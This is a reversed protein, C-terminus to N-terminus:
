EDDKSRLAALDVDRGEMLRYARQRSIGLLAAAKAVNGASTRLAALLQALTPAPATPHLNESVLREPDSTTDATTRQMRAPLDAVGLARAETHLTALRRVLFVLERVNFPWDYLCLHEAVEPTLALPRSSLTQWFRTFLPVVDERRHRLPPLKVTLGDLRAYLDARFRGARVAHDLSQQGAAVVRVDIPIVRSEGLPQVAREELVRLLKSQISLPLDGIEDLLLTGGDASRFLGESPRDAGTFAGRRYGFLEGEALAEPLAACNVAVLSGARGSGRHIARAVVEKGTGTEGELIIPLDSPAAAALASLAQALTAGGWLEPGHESFRGGKRAVVGVWAGLRVVDDAGLVAATVAEGNVKVGNRSALDRLSVAGGASARELAAHRRSVEPGSLRVPAVPDRGLWLGSQPVDTLAVPPLSNAPFVWTLALGPDLAHAAAAPPATLTTAGREDPM